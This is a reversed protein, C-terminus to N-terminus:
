LRYIKLDGEPFKYRLIQNEADSFILHNDTMVLMKYKVSKFSAEIKLSRLDKESIANLLKGRLPNNSKLNFSDRDFKIPAFKNLYDGYYNKDEPMDVAIITYFIGQATEEEQNQSIVDPIIHVLDGKIELLFYFEFNEQNNM